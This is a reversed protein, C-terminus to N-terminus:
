VTTRAIFQYEEQVNGGGISVSKGQSILRVGVIKQTTHNAKKNGYDGFVMYIDFGDFVNDDCRRVQNLLETNDAYRWIEDEFAEVIDEFVKDKPSNVDFTSYGSLNQYFEYREKRTADGQAVREISRREIISGNSGVVPRGGRGGAGSTRKGSVLKKAKKRDVPDTLGKVAFEPAGPGMNFWRRLVAWLYGQEKFNITFSGQVLVHGAATDDFLQSAYGYLPTKQQTTVWQISTVEDVWVDGIYLFVDSDDFYDLDYVRNFIPGAMIKNTEM